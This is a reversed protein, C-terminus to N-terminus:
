STYRVETIKGENDRIVTVDYDTDLDVLTSFDQTTIDENSSFRHGDIVIDADALRVSYLRLVLEHGKVKLEEPIRRSEVLANTKPQKVLRDYGQRITTVSELLYTAAGLFMSAVVVLIIAKRAVM